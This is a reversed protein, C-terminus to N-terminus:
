KKKKKWGYVTYNPPEQDDRVIDIEYGLKELRRATRIVEKYAEGCEVSTSVMQDFQRDLEKQNKGYVDPEWVIDNEQREDKTLHEKDGTLYVTPITDPFAKCSFRNSNLHKCVRCTKVNSLNDFVDPFDGADTYYSGFRKKIEKKTLAM